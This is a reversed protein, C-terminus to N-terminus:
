ASRLTAFILAVTALALLITAVALWRTWRTMAEGQSVAQRQLALGASAMENASEDAERRDLLELQKEWFALGYEIVRRRHEDLGDHLLLWKYNMYWNFAHRRQDVLPETEDVQGAIGQAVADEEPTTEPLPSELLGPGLSEPPQPGGSADTM